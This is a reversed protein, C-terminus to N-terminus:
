RSGQVRLVKAAVFATVVATCSALAGLKAADQVQGPGFAVSAVFLAVTFGIGAACGIVLLGRMAVGEPLRLRLFKMAALGTLCIGVPKGALLAIVVCWTAVGAAGVAVGGNLLGFLGLIGAVPLEWWAEFEDLTDRRITGESPAESPMTPIIPLLALAPHLGAFAFGLWSVVGPGALYWWFSRFGARRLVLGWGVAAVSLLLWAFRVPLVPYFVALVLLGLADDAIALLLLFTTGAHTKGFVLRAILYGFAIDTACPIAWGHHLEGWHGSLAVLALYIAAPGAMGGVACVIPMLARQPDRLSGGPLVAKWVQKGVFAFFFAMLVDNVLYQLDMGHPEHGGAAVAWPLTAIGVAKLRLYSDAALNAWLLGAVAGLTLLISHDSAFRDLLPFTRRLLIAPFPRFSRQM